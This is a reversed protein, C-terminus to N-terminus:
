REIEEILYYNGEIIDMANTIDNLKCFEEVTINETECVKKLCDGKKWLYYFGIFKKEKFIAVSM